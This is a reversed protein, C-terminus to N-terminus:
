RGPSQATPGPSWASLKGLGIPGRMGGSTRSVTCLWSGPDGRLQHCFRLAQALPTDHGEWTALLSTRSVRPPEPQSSPGPAPQSSDGGQEALSDTGAGDQRNARGDRERIPPEELVRGSRGQKLTQWLLSWLSRAPQHSSEHISRHALRPAWHAESSQERAEPTLAACGQTQTNVGSEKRQSSSRLGIVILQQCPDFIPGMPVLLIHKPWLSVAETQLPLPLVRRSLIPAETPPHCTSCLLTEPPESESAPGSPSTTTALTPTWWSVHAQLPLTAPAQALHRPSAATTDKHPSCVQLHAPLAATWQM